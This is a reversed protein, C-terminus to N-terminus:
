LADLETGQAIIAAAAAAGTYDAVPVYVVGHNKKPTTFKIVFSNVYSGDPSLVTQPQQTINTYGIDSPKVFDDPM